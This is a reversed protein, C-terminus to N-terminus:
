GRNVPGFTPTWGSGLLIFNRDMKDYVQILEGGCPTISGADPFMYGDPTTGKGAQFNRGLSKCVKSYWDYESMKM